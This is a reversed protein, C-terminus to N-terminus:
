TKREKGQIYENFTGRIYSIKSDVLILLRVILKSDVASVQFTDMGGSIRLEECLAHSLEDSDYELEEEFNSIYNDFDLGPKFMDVKNLVSVFPQNFATM